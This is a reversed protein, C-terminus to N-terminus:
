MNIIVKLLARKVNESEILFYLHMRVHYSYQYEELLNLCIQIYKWFNFEDCFLLASINNIVAETCIQTDRRFQNCMYSLTLGNQQVAELCFTRDKTFHEGIYFFCRPNFKLVTLCVGPHRKLSVPLKEFVSADHQIMGLYVDPKELIDLPLLNLRFPERCLPCKNSFKFSRIFCDDCVGETHYNICQNRLQNNSYPELCIICNM